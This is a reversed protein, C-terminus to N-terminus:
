PQKWPIEEIVRGDFQKELRKSLSRPLTTDRSEVAQKAFEVLDKVEDESAMDNFLFVGLESDALGM